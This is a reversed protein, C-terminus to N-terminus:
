WGCCLQPLTINECSHTLFETWLPPDRDWCAGCTVHGSPERVPPVKGPPDRDLLDRDLPDIDLPPRRGPPRQGPRDRDLPDRNLLTETWPTETQPTETWPPDRNPLFGKSLSGGYPLSRATRMRSSHMRTNKIVSSIKLYKNCYVTSIM